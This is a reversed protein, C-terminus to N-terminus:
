GRRGGRGSLDVRVTLGVSAYAAHVPFCQAPLPSLSERIASILAVPPWAANRCWGAGLCLSSLVGMERGLCVESISPGYFDVAETTLANNSSDAVVPKLRSSFYNPGGNVPQQLWVAM